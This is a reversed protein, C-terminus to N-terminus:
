KKIQRKNRSLIIKITFNVSSMSTVEANATSGYGYEAELKTIPEEGDVWFLDGVKIKGNFAGYNAIVVWTDNVDEGYQLVGMERAAAPMVTFYNPRTTITEPKAYTPITANSKQIRSSYWVNDGIRM